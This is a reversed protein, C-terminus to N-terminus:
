SVSLDTDADLANKLLSPTASPRAADLKPLALVPESFSKTFTSPGLLQCALGIPCIIICGTTICDPNPAKTPGLAIGKCAIVKDENM